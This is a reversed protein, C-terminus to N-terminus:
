SRASKLTPSTAQMTIVTDYKVQRQNEMYCVAHYIVPDLTVKDTALEKPRAIVEVGRKEVISALEEDDTTNRTVAVLYGAIPSVVSGAPYDTALSVVTGADLVSKYPYAKFAREEGLRKVEVTQYLDEVICGWSLDAAVVIDLDKFRNIDSDKVTELHTIVNHIKPNVYEKRAKQVADLTKTIAADGIAHFHVVM